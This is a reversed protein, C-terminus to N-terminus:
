KRISSIDFSRVALISGIDTPPKYGGWEVFDPSLWYYDHAQDDSYDSASASAWCCESIYLVGLKVLFKDIVELQKTTPLCWDSYGGGRYKKCVEVAQYFTGKGLLESCESVTHTVNDIYFILGGGPGINGIKLPELEYSVNKAFAILVNPTENLDTIEMKSSFVVEATKADILIVSLYLKNGLKMIKGRSVVEANIVEGLKKIKSVDFFDEDQFKLEKLVKNFKSPNVIIMRGMARLEAIYLETIAEAEDKSMANGLVDFAAVAVTKEAIALMSVICAFFLISFLKKM